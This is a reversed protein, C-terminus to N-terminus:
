DKLGLFKAVTLTSPSAQLQGVVEGALAATDVGGSGAANIKAGITGPKNFSLALADLIGAVIEQVSPQAGVDISINVRVDGRMPAFEVDSVAEITFGNGVLNTVHLQPEQGGGALSFAPVRSAARVDLSPADVEGEVVIAFSAPGYWALNTYAAVPM